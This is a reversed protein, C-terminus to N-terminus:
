AAPEEATEATTDEAASEMAQQLGDALEQPVGAKKMNEALVSWDANKIYETLEKENDVAYVSKLNKLDPIEAGDGYGGTLSLTGLAVGSTVLSLDIGSTEAAADSNMKIVASFGNLMNSDSSNDESTSEPFSVTFTGNYYGAKEPKLELNEVKIDLTETQDVAFIYDGSWLGNASSGSGTFTLHSDDAGVEVLLATKGDQSPAKFTFVPEYGTEDTVGIERGIIKDESNVWLKESFHDTDSDESESPKLTELLDDIGSQYAKYQDEGSTWLEFFGKIEKDDKAATLVSELMSRASEETIIGEYATCEEGIGEVSVTEDAATGEEINDIVLNGYRNLLTSVTQSDPLVSTLDSLADMYTQMFEQASSDMGDAMKVALYADSIEPIQIYQKMGAMDQYVNLDCLKQGNLLLTSDIAETGDKVSIDMDMTLDQFWTMDEQGLLSGLVAKGTDEAKLTMSGKAGQLSKEAEQAYGDVAGAVSNVISELSARAAEQYSSGAAFVNSGGALIMSSSLGVAAAKRLLNKGGNM